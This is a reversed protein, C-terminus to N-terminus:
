ENCMSGHEISGEVYVYVLPLEMHLSAASLRGLGLRAGHM